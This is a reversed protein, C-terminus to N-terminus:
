GAACARCLGILDLRHRVSAFRADKALRDLSRDLRRELDPPIGVDEVRGCSSCMLHHHHGTLEESLEYRGFGDESAVRRILGAEELWALNRYVSSPALDKRGRVIDPLALPMGARALIEVLRRRTRTYRGGSRSLRGAVEAHVDM